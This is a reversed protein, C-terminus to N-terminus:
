SPPTRRVWNRTELGSVYEHKGRLVTEVVVSSRPRENRVEENVCGRGDGTSVRTEAREKDSKERHFLGAV